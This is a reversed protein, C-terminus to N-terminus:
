ADLREWSFTGFSGNRFQGLGSLAGYDLATEVAKWTLAESKASKDNAILRIEIDISWPTDIRESAQLGVRPGKPTDARLPREYEDDEEFLPQGNRLLPIRRPFVFLYKDVKSKYSKVGIQKQLAALAAKFFGRVMYDLLIVQDNNDPDRAFVSLGRTQREDAEFLEREEESMVVDPAKSAVFQTRIAESAPQSGLIPSLGTLRYKRSEYLSNHKAEEFTTAGSVVVHEGNLNINASRAM